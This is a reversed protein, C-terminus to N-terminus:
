LGFCGEDSLETPRWREIMWQNRPSCGNTEPHCLLLDSYALDFGTCVSCLLPDPYLVLFIAEAWIGVSFCLRKLHSHSFDQSRDKVYIGISLLWLKSTFSNCPLASTRRLKIVVVTRSSDWTVSCPCWRYPELQLGVPIQLCDTESFLWGSHQQGVM